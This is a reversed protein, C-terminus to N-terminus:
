KPTPTFFFRGLLSENVPDQQNPTIGNCNGERNVKQSRGNDRAPAANKEAKGAQGEAEGVPDSQPVSAGQHSERRPQVRHGVPSRQPEPHSAGDSQHRLIKRHKETDRGPDQGRQQNPAWLRGDFPANWQTENWLGKMLNTNESIRLVM